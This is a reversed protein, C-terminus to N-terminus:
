EDGKYIFYGIKEYKNNVPRITEGQEYYQYYDISSEKNEIYDSYDAKTNPEQCIFELTFTEKPHAVKKLESVDNYLLHDYTLKLINFGTSREILKWMHCGDLRPTVEIIYPTDDEVMVQFYVPGNLIGIKNCTREALSYLKEMGKESLSKTPIVHKHILGVYKEWTIRDSVELFRIKGDVVYGNVSVEPGQVYKEIIVQGSRSYSVTTDYKDLFDEKSYIVNVGRQGQSDTPKMIFPYDLLLEEDKNSIIQFSINGEFEIGLTERLRDKNNCTLATHSSVFHPLGLIESVKTSVPMALDSGTSYVVDINNKQIYDVVDDVNVFNLESFYKAEKAGPGDAKMAIAHTEYGLENLQKISDYQVSAVGLILIKKM